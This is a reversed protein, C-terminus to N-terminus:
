CIKLRPGLLNSIRILIEATLVLGLRILCLVPKILIGVGLGIILGLVAYDLVVLITTM